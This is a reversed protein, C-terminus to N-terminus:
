GVGAYVRNVYADLHAPLPLVPRRPAHPTRWIGYQATLLLRPRARPLRGRHIGFTDAMFVTGAPGTVAQLREAGFTREVTDDPIRDIVALRDDRNSDAVFEFPGDQPGVDTLYVFIKLARINDWDRHFWQTGKAQDRAAFSWWAGINDLTPKCGLFVEAVALVTPHNFFDLVGPLALIDPVAYYGMNTDTGPVADPLFRGLHPRYPDHCPTAQLRRRWDAAQDATVLGLPDSYGRGTLHCLAAAAKGDGRLGATVPRGIRALAALWTRRSPPGSLPLLDYPLTRRDQRARGIIQPITLHRITLPM